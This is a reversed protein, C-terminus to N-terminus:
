NEARRRRGHNEKQRQTAQASRLAEKAIQELSRRLSERMSDGAAPFVAVATHGSLAQAGPYYNRWFDRRTFSDPEAAHLAAEAAELVLIAFGPITGFRRELLGATADQGQELIFRLHIFPDTSHGASSEPHPPSELLKALWWLRAVGHRTLGRPNSITPPALLRGRTDNGSAGQPDIFPGWRQEIYPRLEVTSLRNWLRSDSAEVRTLAPMALYIRISNELDTETAGLVLEPLPGETRPGELRAHDPIRDVFAFFEQDSRASDFAARLSRNTSERWAPIRKM